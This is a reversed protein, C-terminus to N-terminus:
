RVQTATTSAVTAKSMGEVQMEQAVRGAAARLCVVGTTTAQLEPAAQLLEGQHPPAVAAPLMASLIAQLGVQLARTSYSPLYSSPCTTTISVHNGDADYEYENEASVQRGDVQHVFTRKDSHHVPGANYRFTHSSLSVDADDIRQTSAMSAADDGTDASTRLRKLTGENHRKREANSRDAWRKSANERRSLYESTLEGDMDGVFETHNKFIREVNQQDAEFTVTDMERNYRFGARLWTFVQKDMQTAEKMPEVLLPAIDNETLKDGVRKNVARTMGGQLIMNMLQDNPQSVHSIGSKFLCM